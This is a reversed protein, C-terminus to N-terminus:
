AMGAADADTLPLTARLTTGGGVPSEIRLTGELADVRDRLGTLGSGEATDAGGRGDDHIELLLQQDEVRAIMAARTAAAHKVVNTLAEAIVFYATTELGVPLRPVDVDIDVPVPLDRALAKVAAAFGSVTLSGPLIGRVLDRLDAHSM